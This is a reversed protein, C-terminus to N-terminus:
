YQVKRVGRGCFFFGCLICGRGACVSKHSSGGWGTRPKWSTEGEEMM